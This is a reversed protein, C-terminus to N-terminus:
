RVSALDPHHTRFWDAVAEGAVQHGRPSWHGDHTFHTAEFGVARFGAIPDVAELGRAQLAAVTKERLARYFPTDDRIEFRTPAILVAFPVSASVERRLALIADATSNVVADLQDAPFREYAIHDHALLGADQLADVLWPVRKLSVALFNYLALKETLLLKFKGFRTLWSPLPKAEEAAARIEAERTCNYHRMDNELVLGVVVARPRVGPPMRRWLATYGCVDAGPSAVNYTPVGLRDKIVDTYMETRDVGWGFAMSDGIVWLRGAAAAVSEDNRLHFDNIRVHVRFNGNNQAFWGDYNRRGLAVPPLGPLQLGQDEMFRNSRFERWGPMAIRTVIELVGVTLVLGVLIALIAGKATIRADM